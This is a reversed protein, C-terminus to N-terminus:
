RVQNADYRELTGTHRVAVEPHHQQGYLTCYLGWPILTFAVGLGAFVWHWRAQIQAHWAPAELVLKTIVCCSM